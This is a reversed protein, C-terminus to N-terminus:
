RLVKLDLKYLDEQFLLAGEMDIKKKTVCIDVWSLLYRISNLRQHISLMEVM